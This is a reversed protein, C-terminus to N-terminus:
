RVAFQEVSGGARCGSDWRRDPLRGDARLDVERGAEFRNAGEVRVRATVTVARERHADGRSTRDRDCRNRNGVPHNRDRPSRIFVSSRPALQQAVPVGNQSGSHKCRVPVQNPDPDSDPDQEIPIRRIAEGEIDVNPLIKDLWAPLKWASDGLISMVAPIVIM